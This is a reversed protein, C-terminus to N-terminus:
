SALSFSCLVFFCLVPFCLCILSKAKWRMEWEEEGNLHRKTAQYLPNGQFNASHTKTRILPMREFRKHTQIMNWFALLWEEKLHKKLGLKGPHNCWPSCLSPDYTAPLFFQLTTPQYPLERTFDSWSYNHDTQLLCLLIVVKTDIIWPWDPQNLPTVKEGTHVRFLSQTSGVHFLDGHSFSKRQVQSNYACRYLSTVPLFLQCFVCFLIQKMNNAWILFPLCYDNIKMFFFWVM